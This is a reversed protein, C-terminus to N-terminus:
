LPFQGIKPPDYASIMAYPKSSYAIVTSGQGTAKLFLDRGTVDGIPAKRKRLKYACRVLTPIIKRKFRSYWGIKAFEQELYNERSRFENATRPNLGISELYDVMENRGRLIKGDNVIFTMDLMLDLRHRYALYKLSPNDSELMAMYGLLQAEAERAYGMLHAKEHAIIEPFLDCTVVLEPIFPNLMGGMGERLLWRSFLSKKVKKSHGVSYGKIKVIVDDISKNVEENVRSFDLEESDAHLNLQQIIYELEQAADVRNIELGLEKELPTRLYNAFYTGVSVGVVSAFTALATVPADWIEEPSATFMRYSVLGLWGVIIEKNILSLGLFADSICANTTDTIKGTIGSWYRYLHEHYADGLDNIISM